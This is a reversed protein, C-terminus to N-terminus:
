RRTLHKIIRYRQYYHTLIYKIIAFFVTFIMLHEIGKFAFAAGLMADVMFLLLINIILSILGFSLYVYKIFYRYVLLKVFNELFTFLMIATIYGIPDMSVLPEGVGIALGIVVASALINLLFSLLMHVSYKPHLLFSVRVKVPQSPKQM